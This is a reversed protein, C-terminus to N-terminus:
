SSININHYGPAITVAPSLKGSQKIKEAIEAIYLLKEQEQKRYMLVERYWRDRKNKLSNSAAIAKKLQEGREVARKKWKDRSTRLEKMRGTESRIGAQRRIADARLEDYIRRAQKVGHERTLEVMKRAIEITLERQAKYSLTMQQALEIDQEKIFMTSSKGKLSFSLQHYPGHRQPNDPDKCRCGARGCTTYQDKISGPLPAPLKLQREILIKLEDVTTM